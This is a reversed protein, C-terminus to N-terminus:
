ALSRTGEPEALFGGPGVPVSQQLTLMSLAGLREVAPAMWPTRPRPADPAPPPSTNPQMPM